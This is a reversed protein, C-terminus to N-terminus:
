TVTQLCIVILVKHQDTLAAAGVPGTASTSPEVSKLVGGMHEVQYSVVLSEVGESEPAPSLPPRPNKRLFKRLVKPGVTLKKVAVQPSCGSAAPAPPTALPLPNVGM